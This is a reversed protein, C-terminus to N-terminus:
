EYFDSIIHGIVPFGLASVRIADSDKICFYKFAKLKSMNQLKSICSSIIKISDESQTCAGTGICVVSCNGLKYKVKGFSFTDAAFVNLNNVLYFLASALNPAENEESATLLSSIINKEKVSTYDMPIFPTQGNGVKVFLFIADKKNEVAQSIINTINEKQKLTETSNEVLFAFVDKQQFKPVAPKWYYPKTGFTPASPRGKYGFGDDYRAGNPLSGKVPTLPPVDPGNPVKPRPPINPKGSVPHNAKSVDEDNDQTWSSYAIDEADVPPESFSKPVNDQSAPPPTNEKADPIVLPPMGGNVSKLMDDATKGSAKLKSYYDYDSDSPRIDYPSPKKGFLMDFFSM